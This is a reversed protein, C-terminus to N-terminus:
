AGQGRRAWEERRSPDSEIARAYMERAMMGDKFATYVEALHEYISADSPQRTGKVEILARAKELEQHAEQHQGLRFLCWGAVDHARPNASDKIQVAAALRHAREIDVGANVLANALDLVYEANDQGLAYAREFQAVAGPWDKEAALALGLVHYAPAHNPALQLARHLHPIAKRPEKYKLHVRSLSVLGEPKHKVRLGALLEAVADRDEGLLRLVEGLEMHLEAWDPYKELAQRLYYEAKPLQGIEMLALGFGRAVDPNEPARQYAQSFNFVANGTDGIKLYATALGLYGDGIDPALEVVKNFWRIADDYKESRSALAGFNYYAYPDKPDLDMAHRNTELAEADQGLAFYIGSMNRWAMADRGNLALMDRCAQLARLYDRRTCADRFASLLDERTM